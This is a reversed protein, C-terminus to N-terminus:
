AAESTNREFWQPDINAASCAARYQALAVSYASDTRAIDAERGPYAPACFYYCAMRLAEVASDLLSAIEAAATENANTMDLLYRLGNAAALGTRTGTPHM